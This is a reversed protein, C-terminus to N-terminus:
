IDSQVSYLTTDEVYVDINCIPYDPLNNIYLLSLKPDLISGQPFGVNDPYEQTLNGDLVM